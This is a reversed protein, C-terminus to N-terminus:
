FIKFSNISFKLCENKKVLFRNQYSSIIIEVKLGISLPFFRM